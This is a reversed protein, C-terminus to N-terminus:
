SERVKLDTTVTHFLPLANTLTAYHCQYVNTEFKFHQLEAQTSVYCKLKPVSM